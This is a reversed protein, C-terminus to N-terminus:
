PCENHKRWMEPNHGAPVTRCPDVGYGRLMNYRDIQARTLLRPTKLHTSLHIYRLKQRSDAIDTLLERLMTETITANHFHAELRQELAILRNGEAIADAQMTKYISRIATVQNNDLPIKDKLELLHAPGPM